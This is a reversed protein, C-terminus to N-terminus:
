QNKLKRWGVVVKQKKGNVNFDRYIYNGVVITEPIIIYCNDCYDKSFIDFSDKEIIKFIKKCKNCIVEVKM